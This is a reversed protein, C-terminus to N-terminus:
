RVKLGPAPRERLVAPRFRYLKAPRGSGGRATEGTPEVLQATEVMRRFNQKHVPKGYIAEVTDQLESLTFSPEMLEFVVPRYKVKARLRALATALIRRHDAALPRGTREMTDSLECRGDTAAERVLGAEYLLEYRDLVREENWPLASSGFTLQLRAIRRADGGVWADLEGKLDDVLGPRGERWDEWPFSAYIGRWGARVEDLRTLGLYGVSVIRRESGERGEDGFTYLQEVYGPRVATQEGVWRRLGGELTRDVAPVLPGAPLADAGDPTQITLVVPEGERM